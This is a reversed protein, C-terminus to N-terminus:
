RGRATPLLGQKRLSFITTAPHEQYDFENYAPGSFHESLTPTQSTAGGGGWWCGRVVLVVVVVGGGGTACKANRVQLPSTPSSSSSCTSSPRWNM